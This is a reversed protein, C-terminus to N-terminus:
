VGLGQIQTVLENLADAVSQVDTEDAITVGISSFDISTGALLGTNDTLESIDSPILPPTYTFTGTNPDYSLVSAGAGTNTVSFASLDPAAGAAPDVNVFSGSGSDFALLQGDTINTINVDALDDIQSPISPLNSLSNYNGDFLSPLNSLNNYDGNFTNATLAYVSLDPKNTLSNYDGDFSQVSGLNTYVETFNTNTKEFASRLSEGDGSYDASGVNIIQQAM